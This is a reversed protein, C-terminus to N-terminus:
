EIFRQPTKITRGSTTLKAVSAPVGGEQPVKVFRVTKKRPTAAKTPKPTPTARKELTKLSLKMQKAAEKAAEKAAKKEAQIQERAEKAMQRQLAKEAKQAEQEKKKASSVARKTAKWDKEAQEQADKEAQFDRAACIRTPSYLQPDNDEEGLLNLKRGCARSKKEVNLAEFLGQKTHEDIAHQTSLKTCGHSLADIKRPSPNKMAALTLARISKSTLPTPIRSSTDIQCEPPTTPRQTIIDLM